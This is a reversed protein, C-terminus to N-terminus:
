NNKLANVNMWSGGNACPIGNQHLFMTAQHSRGGAACCLVINHMTKLENLRNPIENLPINKSGVVHGGMFEEPTRVDVVNAQGNKLLEVINNM